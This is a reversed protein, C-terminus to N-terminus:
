REGAGRDGTAARRRAIRLATLRDAFEARIPAVEERELGLEDAIQNLVASDQANIEDDAADVVYCARLLARRQEPTSIERYQRTVLYDETAGSVLAQLKAMEVVLVAQAEDIGGEVLVREMAATEIDTIRLDANAARALVYASAALLRAREPPLAELRAVIRRVTDTDGADAPAAQLRAPEIGLFRHFV